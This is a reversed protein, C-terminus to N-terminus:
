SEARFYEVKSNPYSQLSFVYNIGKSDAKRIEELKLNEDIELITKAKIQTKDTYIFLKFGQLCCYRPNWDSGKQFITKLYNIVDNDKM